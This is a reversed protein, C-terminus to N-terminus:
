LVLLGESLSRKVRSQNVGSTRAPFGGNSFADNLYSVFSSSSEAMFVGDACSDPLRFGYPSGGSVNAKHLRDPAVPMVFGALESDYESMERWSEYESDWYDVISVGAYRSGALEIVLPDAQDSEPWDPHTGVLWVDGVLRMWSSVTLPIPGWNAELVAITEAPTPSQFPLVPSREEDNSHFQFGQDTLRNIISEINSRARLAMEDCVARASDVIEPSRVAAGLQRLEWWVQEREGTRYRELWNMSGM